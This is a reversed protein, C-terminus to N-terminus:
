NQNLRYFNFSPHNFLRFKYKTTGLGSSIYLDTNNIKQYDKNYKLAGEELMLGKNLYIQGKHSHGSLILNPSYNYLILDTNDPQHTITITFIDKIADKEKYYSFAKDINHTFGNLLIPNYGNYYILEYRDDLSIFNAEEYINSVITTDHEGLVYYKGITAKMDKFVNTLDSIDKENILAINDLLDGSFIIIDPKLYNIKDKVQVLKNYELSTNYHIDSFHVIKIGDYEIPLNSYTLSYEKVVLGMNGIYRITVYLISILFFIIILIKIVNNTVKINKKRKEEKLIANVKEKNKEERSVM